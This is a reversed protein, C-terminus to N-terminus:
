DRRPPTLQTREIIIMPPEHMETIVTQPRAPGAGMTATAPEPARAAAVDTPTVTFAPLEMRAAADAPVMVIDGAMVTYPLLQRQATQLDTLLPATSVPPLQRGTREMRITNVPVNPGTPRVVQTLGVPACAAGQEFVVSAGAPYRGALAERLNQSMDVPADAGRYLVRNNADYVTYCAMAQSGALLLATLVGMKTKM